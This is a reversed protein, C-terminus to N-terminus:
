FFTRYRKGFSLIKFIALCFSHNMAALGSVSKM